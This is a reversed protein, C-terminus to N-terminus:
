CVHTFSFPWVLYKKWLLKKFLGNLNVLNWRQVMYATMLLGSHCTLSILTAAHIGLSIGDTSPAALAESSCLLTRHLAACAGQLATLGRGHSHGAPLVASPGVSKNTGWHANQPSYETDPCGPLLRGAERTSPAHRLVVCIDDEWSSFTEPFLRQVWPTLLLPSNGQLIFYLGSTCTSVPGGPLMTECIDKTLFTSYNTSSPVELTPLDDLGAVQEWCCWGPIWSLNSLAMDLWTKSQLKVAECLSTGKYKVERHVNREVSRM